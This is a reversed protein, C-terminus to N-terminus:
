CHCKAVRIGLQGNCKAILFCGRWCINLRGFIDYTRKESTTVVAQENGASGIPV